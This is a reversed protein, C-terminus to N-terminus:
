AARRTGRKALEFLGLGVADIVNHVLSRPAAETVIAREPVTLRAMTRTNHVDKPVQGKWERPKYAVVEGGIRHVDRAIAGVVGTLELLDDPDGKSVGARYVQPREIVLVTNPGLCTWATVADAMRCWVDPGRGAAAGRYLGAHLLRGNAGFVALGCARLGPDIAIM